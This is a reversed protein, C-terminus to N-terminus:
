RAMSLVINYVKLNSLFINGKSGPQLDRTRFGVSHLGGDPEQVARGKGMKCTLSIHGSLGSSERGSSKRFEPLM